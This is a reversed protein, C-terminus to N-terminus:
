SINVLVVSVLYIKIDLLNRNSSLDHSDNLVPLSRLEADNAKGLFLTSCATEVLNKVGQLIDEMDLVQKNSILQLRLPHDLSQIRRSYKRPM